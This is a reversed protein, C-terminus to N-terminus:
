PASAEPVQTLDFPFVTTFSYETGRFLSNTPLYGTDQNNHRRWVATSINRLRDSLM